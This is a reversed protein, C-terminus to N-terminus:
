YFLCEAYCFLVYLRDSPICMRVPRKKVSPRAGQVASWGMALGSGVCLVVCVCFGRRSQSEFGRDWHELTPLRNMVEVARCGHDAYLVFWPVDSKVKHFGQTQIGPNEVWAHIENLISFISCVLKQHHRLPSEVDSVSSSPGQNGCYTAYLNNIFGSAVSLQYYARV